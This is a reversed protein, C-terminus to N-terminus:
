KQLTEKAGRAACPTGYLNHFQFPNWPWAMGRREDESGAGQGPLVGQVPHRRSSGRVPKWAGPSLQGHAGTKSIGAQVRPPVLVGNEGSLLWRTEWGPRPNAPSSCQLAWVPRSPSRGNVDKNAPWAKKKREKEKKQFM